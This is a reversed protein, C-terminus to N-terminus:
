KDTKTIYRPTPNSPLLTSIDEVKGSSTFTNGRTNIVIRVRVLVTPLKTAETKVQIELQKETTTEITKM